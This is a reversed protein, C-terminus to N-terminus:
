DLDLNEFASLDINAKTPKAAKPVKPAKEAKAPKAPARNQRLFSLGEAIEEATIGHHAPKGEQVNLLMRQRLDTLKQSHEPSLM